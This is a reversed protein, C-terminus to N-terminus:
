ITFQEGNRMRARIDAPSLRKRFTGKRANRNRERDGSFEAPTHTAGTDLNKAEDVTGGPKFHLRVKKGTPTTTVRYKGPGIPM